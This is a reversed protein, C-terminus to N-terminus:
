FRFYELMDRSKGTMENLPLHSGFDIKVTVWPTGRARNTQLKGTLRGSDVAQTCEESVGWATIGIPGFGLVFLVLIFM